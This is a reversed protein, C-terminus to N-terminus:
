AALVYVVTVRVAVTRRPVTQGPTIRGLHQLLAQYQAHSPPYVLQAEGAEGRVFREFSAAGDLKTFM